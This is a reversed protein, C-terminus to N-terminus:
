RRIRAGSSDYGDGVRRMWVRALAMMSDRNLRQQSSDESLDMTGTPDDALNYLGLVRENLDYVIKDFGRIVARWETLGGVGGEVYVSDPVDGQRTRILSSLDRGHVGEIAPLGALALVTPMLDVTSILIEPAERAAIVDPFRIAIPFHLCREAQSDETTGPHAILVITRKDAGRLIPRFESQESVTFERYRERFITAFTPEGGSKLAHPFRGTVLVRRAFGGPSGLYGRPFVICERAVEDPIFPLRNFVVTLRVGSPQAALALPAALITRRSIM